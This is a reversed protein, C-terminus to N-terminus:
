EAATAEDIWRLYAASGQNVPVQIIEPIEYTHNARIFKELEAFLGARTKILLLWEDARNVAGKWAFFSRMKLVQVCAALGRAVIAAALEEAATEGAATTMVVAYGEKGAM